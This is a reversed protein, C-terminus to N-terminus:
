RLDVEKKLPVNAKCMTCELISTNYYVHAEHVFFSYADEAIRGKKDKYDRAGLHFVLGHVCSSM